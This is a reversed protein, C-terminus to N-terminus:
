KVTLKSKALDTVNIKVTDGNIWKGILMDFPNVVKPTLYTLPSCLYRYLDQFAFETGISRNFLINANNRFIVNNPDTVRPVRYDSLSTVLYSKLLIELHAVNVEAKTNVLDSFNQLADHCTTISRIDKSLFTSVNKVFQLMNDNVVVFKFLPIANTGKAPVWIKGDKNKCESYHNKFHLLFDTSLYPFQEDSNGITMDIDYVEDTKTNHIYVNRITSFAEESVTRHRDIYLIDSLKRIDSTNFGIEINALQGVLEDSWRIENSAKKGMELIGRSASPLVYLISFTKILHKNSLIKQTVQEIIQITAIIGLHINRDINYMIAGGCVECVGKRYRCTMPSRMHITTGILQKALEASVQVLKNDLLINKGVITKFNKDTVDFDVYVKSGCDGKYVHEIASAQLQQKRNFYQSRPVAQKNYVSSKKASLSEIAFEEATTLGDVASGAIPFRIVRDDIDTRPGYSVLMQPCQHPNLQKANHYTYLANNPFANKTGVLEFLDHSISAILVEATQTGLEPTIAKKRSLIEKSKPDTMIEAVDMIDVTHTYVLLDTCCFAYIENLCDWILNRFASANEPNAGIIETYYKMLASMLGSNTCTFRRIYHRKSIPIGFQAPIYLWFLNLAAMRVSVEINGDALQLVVHGHSDCIRSRVERRFQPNIIQDLTWTEIVSTM